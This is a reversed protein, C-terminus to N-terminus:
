TCYTHAKHKTDDLQHFEYFNFEGRLVIVESMWLSSPTILPQYILINLKKRITVMGLAMGESASAYPARYQVTYSSIFFHSRVRTRSM